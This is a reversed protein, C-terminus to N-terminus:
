TKNTPVLCHSFVKVHSCQKRAINEKRKKITTNKLLGQRYHDTPKPLTCYVVRAAVSKM